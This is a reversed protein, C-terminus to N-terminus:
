PRGPREVPRRWIAEWQLWRGREPPERWNEDIRLAIVEEWSEFLSTLEARVFFHILLGEKPGELYRITFSGDSDQEVVDHAYEIQTGMANVRICFLGGPEVRDQASQIHAHASARDGHQFVQIGVVVGYTSRPPLASLDGHVLRHRRGPMRERLQRIAVRSVDVGVLDLGSAVLPTYNRGNGCGIYVGVTDTLGETAVATLVDHVFGVPQEQEYRGAEYATDWAREVQADV